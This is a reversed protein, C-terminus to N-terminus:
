PCHDVKIRGVEVARLEEARQLKFLMEGIKKTVDSIESLSHRHSLHRVLRPV